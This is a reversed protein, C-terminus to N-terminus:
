TVETATITGSDNVTIDFKKTSGSTSSLLTIKQAEFTVENKYKYVDAVNSGLKDVIKWYGSQMVKLKDFYRWGFTGVYDKNSDYVYVEFPQGKIRLNRGFYIIEGETVVFGDGPTRKADTQTDDDEGTEPDIGGTEVISTAATIQIAVTANLGNIVCETKEELACRDSIEACIGNETNNLADATIIDGNKWLTPSFYYAM